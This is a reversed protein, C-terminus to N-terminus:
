KEPKGIVTPNNSAANAQGQQHDQDQQHYARWPTIAFIARRNQRARTCRLFSVTFLTIVPNVDAASFKPKVLFATIPPVLQGVQTLRRRVTNYANPSSTGSTATTTAM